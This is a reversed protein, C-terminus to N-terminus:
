GLADILFYPTKGHNEGDMKPYQVGLKQFCRFKNEVFIESTFFVSVSICGGPFSSIASMAVGM